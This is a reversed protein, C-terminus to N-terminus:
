LGSKMERLLYKQVVSVQIDLPLSLNQEEIQIKIIHNALDKLHSQIHDNYYSFTFTTRDFKDAKPEGSKVNVPIEWFVAALKNKESITYPIHGLELRKMCDLLFEWRTILSGKERYNLFDALKNKLITYQNSYNRENYSKITFYIKQKNSWVKNLSDSQLLKTPNHLFLKAKTKKEVMFSKLTTSKNAFSSKGLRSLLGKKVTEIAKQLIIKQPSLMNLEWAILKESSLMEKYGGAGGPTLDFYEFGEEALSIGLQLFHLIGPSHKAYFPSHSNIGQLHVMDPGIIGANSALLEQNLTFLSLHILGSDYLELLFQKRQPEDRFATKNYMAGKRFDSQLCMEEIAKEFGDKDKVVRFSLEGLRNLRNLKEKRNKKKLELQLQAKDLRMLPMEYPKLMVRHSWKSNYIESISTLPPLYKLKLSQKPFHSSIAELASTIFSEHINSTELWVQYEALNTGAAVLSKGDKTLALMGSMSNNDWDTIIICPYTPFNKYWTSVFTVGQFVTAWKCAKWLREWALLFAHDSLLDRAKENEFVTIKM